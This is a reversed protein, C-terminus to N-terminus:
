KSIVIKGSANYSDVKLTYIYSGAGINRTDWLQQGQQGSLIFTEITKGLADTIVLSANTANEPLTFDFAAWDKAPNPKANIELGYIKNISNPDVYTNKYSAESVIEPCNCYHNGYFAELIGKSAAGSAQKSNDAFTNLVALETSDLAVIHRNQNMLNFELNLLQIYNAHEQLEEGQLNYLTPLINALTFAAELNGEEAYTAIIQKDSEIGGKNDLWNRLQVLDTVSDNIISRIMDNAALTRIQEYRAMEQQLVSKYTIGTAVQRLIDIMYEPLPSVKEELYKLLEENKLEDPNAALIDFIAAETFVDTKNAVQKLVDVSLHPSDGLLKSRLSWMEQPQASQIDTLTSATSGGDKLNDYLSKVGTYDTLADAFLLEREAKQDESLIVMNSSSSGYHSACSNSQNTLHKTVRYLKSVDPDCDTCNNTSYYYDILNDGENYFHWTANNSFTNGASNTASGQGSQIGSPLGKQVYFDAYNNENSNCHYKLGSYAYYGYNVEVAYNGNSLGNFYNKYIIDQSHTNKVYIGYYNASPADAAKTFHNEEIAFGSSNDLHIGYGPVGTCIASETSYNFGISFNSNIITFNHMNLAKLGYSNDTFDARNVYFSNTSVQSTTAYIGSYFGSFTSNDYIINPQQSTIVADVSFGANYSAIAQNWESVGTVNPSLSFDCGKFKVGKVKSLDIHKYFTVDGPYDPTIEFSCNTFQSVNDVEAVPANPMFNRYDLAHVSRANNRFIAGNAVVIGGTTTWDNPKWLEVATVANEITAGNKLELYGQYYSGNSGPFQHAYKNGWVEIGQWPASCGSTILGGNVILKSGPEVIIKSDTPMSIRADGTITLTAMNNIQVNRDLRMFSDWITNNSIILPENNTICPLDAEWVGRGFTGVVIRNNIVDIQIDRIDVNPLDGDVYQWIGNNQTYYYLGYNTGAYLVGNAGKLIELHSITIYSPLGNSIDNWNHSITNVDYVRAGAAVWIHDPNFYDVAIANIWKNELPSGVDEWNNPNTGGGVTSKFVKQFTGVSNGYWSAYIYGGHTISNAIRWTKNNSVGPYNAYDDWNDCYDLTRRIGDANSGNLINPSVNNQIFFSHWHLNGYKLVFTQGGDDSRYVDNQSSAWMRNPNSWDFQCQFGDGGVVHRETWLNKNLKYLNTGCDYAGSLAIDKNTESVALNHITAVALGNNRESWNHILDPMTSKNIGGDNGIWLTQGDPEFIMYHMDVHIECNFYDSTVDVWSCANNDLLNNTIRIPATNGHVMILENNSNLTPSITWGMAREPGVGQTNYDPKPLQGKVFITNNTLDYRYLYSKNLGGWYTAVIFLYQPMAPSIEIILRRGDEVPILSINPLEVYIDNIWDIKYVSTNPGTGSAFAIGPHQPDFEVDYFNGDILKVFIPNAVLADECEYLGGITAVFLHVKGQYRTLIVKRMQIINELGIIEWNIGGDTTRGIGISNQAFSRGPMSEGNGTSVFWNTNSNMPDIAVSSVGCLPLGKDTGANIWSQGGDLSRWLGGSPACAFLKQGTQDNPDFTIFHIQGMGKSDPKDGEPMKNPGILKWDLNFPATVQSARGSKFDSVYQELKQREITFDGSPYVIPEWYDVWRQYSNYDTGQMSDIGNVMILSDYYAALNAKISYFNQLQANTNLFVFICMLVLFLRHKM